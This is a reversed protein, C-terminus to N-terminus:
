LNNIYEKILREVQAKDYINDVKTVIIDNNYDTIQELIGEVSWREVLINYLSEVYVSNDKVEEEVVWDLSKLIEEPTFREIARSMLADLTNLDKRKM